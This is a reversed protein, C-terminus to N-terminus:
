KSRPGFIASGIRLMTSGGLLAERWDGSMGYSFQHLGLAKGIETLRLFNNVIKESGWKPHAIAMLGVINLGINLSYQVLDDIQEKEFIIGSKSGEKSINVQILVPNKYELFNLRKALKKTDLTHLVTNDGLIYKVNGRQLHGIFHWQLEPLKTRKIHLENAYNEGFIHIGARMAIEIEEISRTKSVAIIKPMDLKNDHVFSKIEDRVTNYRIEISDDVPSM